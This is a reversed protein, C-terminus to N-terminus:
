YEEKKPELLQGKLVIEGNYVSGIVKITQTFVGELSEEAGASAGFIESISFGFTHSDKKHWDAQLFFKFSTVGNFLKQDIEGIIKSDGHYGNITYYVKEIKGTGENYVIQIFISNSTGKVEVTESDLLRTSAKPANPKTAKKKTKKGGKGPGDIGLLANGVSGEEEILKQGVLDPTKDEVNLDWSMGESKYSLTGDLKKDEDEEKHTDGTATKDSADMGQMGDPDTFRLPNNYVYVYPSWRRSNDSLPDINHWLGLQSDYFRAGFDYQELGFGDSFEDTQIEKGNFKTRNTLSGLAKASIGVMTLGFPYYHTEELLPGSSV